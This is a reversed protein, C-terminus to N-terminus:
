RNIRGLISEKPLPGYFRSDVSNARNDGLVYYQGPGFVILEGEMNSFTFTKTGESLYPESLKEGNIYIEGNKFLMSQGPMGIIRKVAFDTQGPDKVVVVDGFEPEAYKYVMRNLIYHDGNRLTPHMSVGVVQVTEFVYHSILFYSLAGLGFLVVFRASGAFFSRWTYRKTGNTQCQETSAVAELEASPVSVMEVQRLRSESFSGKDEQIV